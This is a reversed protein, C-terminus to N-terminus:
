RRRVARFTGSSEIAGTASADFWNGRLTDAVLTAVHRRTTGGLVVDFETTAAGAMRGGIPGSLRRQLGQLTTEVVDFSGGFSSVSSSQMVVVGQFSGGAGATIQGTLEWRGEVPTIGAPETAAPLCGTLTCLMAAALTVGLPGLCPNKLPAHM